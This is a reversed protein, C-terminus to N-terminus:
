HENHNDDGGHLKSSLGGGGGGQSLGPLGGTTSPRSLIDREDYSDEEAVHLLEEISPNILKGGHRTSQPNNSANNGGVSNTPLASPNNPNSSNVPFVKSYLLTVVREQSLLLELARERDEQAFSDIPISSAPQSSYVKNIDGPSHIGKM